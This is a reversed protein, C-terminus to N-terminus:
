STGPEKGLSDVLSQLEVARRNALARLKPDINTNDNLTAMIDDHIGRADDLDGQAPKQGNAIMEALQRYKCLVVNTKNQLLYILAPDFRKRSEDSLESLFSAFISARACAQKISDFVTRSGIQSSIRSSLRAALYYDRQRLTGTLLNNIDKISVTSPGLLRGADDASAAVSSLWGMATSSEDDIDSFYKEVLSRTTLLLNYAVRVDDAEPHREGKEIETLRTSWILRGRENLLVLESFVSEDGALGANPSLLTHASLLFDSVSQDTGDDNALGAALTIGDATDLYFPVDFTISLSKFGAPLNTMSIKIPAFVIKDLTFAFTKDGNDKIEASAPGSLLVTPSNGAFDPHSKFIVRFEGAHLACPSFCAVLLAGLALKMM